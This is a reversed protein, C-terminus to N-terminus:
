IKCANKTRWKKESMRFHKNELYVFIKGTKRNITKKTNSNSQHIKFLGIECIMSTIIVVIVKSSRSYEAINWALNVHGVCGVISWWACVFFFFDRAFNIARESNLQLALASKKENAWWNQVLRDYNSNNSALWKKERMQKKERKSNTTIATTTTTTTM